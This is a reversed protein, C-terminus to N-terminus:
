GQEGCSGCWGSPQQATPALRPMTTLIFRAPARGGGKDGAQGRAGRGVKGGGQGVGEGAVPGNGVVFWWGCGWGVAGGLQSVHDGTLWWGLGRGSGM